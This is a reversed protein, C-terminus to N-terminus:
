YSLMRQRAAALDRDIQAYLEVESDFCIEPRLFELFEVTMTSGYLDGSFDLLYTECNVPANKDVTPHVGVNSLGFYTHEHVTCRTLYVGYRPILRREPFTQNVTPIGQTRGFAKGHIIEATIAYPVTLLAAAAESCGELLLQRIRTSSVTDGLLTEKPLVTVPIRLIRQMDEPTGTGGTGFRYNFGCALGCSHCIGELIEKAFAKPSLTRVQPFEALYAYELGEERFIRLKDEMSSLQPIPTDSLYFSSPVRFCFAGLAATPFQEDRLRKTERILRRHAYHVGDFNGLCLVSAAPFQKVPAGDALSICTISPIM